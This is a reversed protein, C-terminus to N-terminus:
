VANIPTSTEATHRATNPASEKKIGVIIQMKHKRCQAKALEKVNDKSFLKEIPAKNFNIPFNPSKSEITENNENIKKSSCVTIQSNFKEAYFYMKSLLDKEFYDDSDLFQIYKGSAIKIANNRAAGQKKNEQHIVKIRDDLCGTYYAMKGGLSHGMIGIKDGDVRPDSYLLDIMLKTDHILKGVGSWEPHAKNLAEGAVRWRTFDMLDSKNEPVYTLHYAQATSAIYGRKVLDVLTANDKFKEVLSKMNAEMADNERAIEVTTTYIREALEPISEGGPVKCTGFNKHWGILFQEPYEEELRKVETCEWDGLYVERLGKCKTIELGRIRAHPLVTNYARILDSPYIKDIM